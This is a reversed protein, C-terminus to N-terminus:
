GGYEALLLIDLQNISNRAQRVPNWDNQNDYLDYYVTYNKIKNRSLTPTGMLSLWETPIFLSLEIGTRYSDPVNKRCNIVSIM